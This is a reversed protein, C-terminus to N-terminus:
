PFFMASLVCYFQVICMTLKMLVYIVFIDIIAYPLVVNLVRCSIQSSYVNRTRDNIFM